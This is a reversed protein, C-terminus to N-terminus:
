AYAQQGAARLAGGRQDVPGNLRMGDDRSAAKPQSAFGAEHLVPYLFDGSGDGYIAAGHPQIWAGGSGAGAGAGAGARRRIIAGAQGLVGVGCVRAARRAVEACYGRLRPCRECAVIRANLIQLPSTSKTM